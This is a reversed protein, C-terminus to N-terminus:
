IRTNKLCFAGGKKKKQFPFLFFSIVRASACTSCLHVRHLLRCRVRPGHSVSRLTSMDYEYIDLETAVLTSVPALSGLIKLADLHVHPSPATAKYDIVAHFSCVIQSMLLWRQLLLKVWMLTLLHFSWNFGAALIHGSNNCITASGVSFHRVAVTDFNAKLLILLVLSSAELGFIRMEANWWQFLVMISSRKIVRLNM